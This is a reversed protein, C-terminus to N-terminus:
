ERSLPMTQTPAFSRDEEQVADTWAAWDTDGGNGEIVEHSTEWKDEWQEKFAELRSPNQVPAVRVPAVPEPTAPPSADVKSRKFLKSFM